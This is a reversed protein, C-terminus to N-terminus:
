RVDLKCKNKDLKMSVEKSKIGYTQNGSFRKIIKGISLRSSVTPLSRVIAVRFSLGHMPIVYTSV